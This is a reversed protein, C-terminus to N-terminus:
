DPEISLVAYLSLACFLIGSSDMAAIHLRHDLRVHSGGKKPRIICNGQWFAVQCLRNRWVRQNYSASGIQVINIIDEIEQLNIM